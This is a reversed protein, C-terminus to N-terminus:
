VRDGRAHTIDNSFSGICGALAEQTQVFFEPRSLVPQIRTSKVVRIMEYVQSLEVPNLGELEHITQERLRM